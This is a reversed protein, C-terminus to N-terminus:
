VRYAPGDYRDIAPLPHQDPRKCRSCALLLLRCPTSSMSLSLGRSDYAVHIAQKCSVHHKKARGLLEPCSTCITSTAMVPSNFSTSPPTTRWPTTGYCGSANGQRTRAYCQRQPKITPSSILHLPLLVPTARTPYTLLELSHPVSLR